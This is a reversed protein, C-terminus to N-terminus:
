ILCSRQLFSLSDSMFSNEKDYLDEKSNLSKLKWTLWIGLVKHVCICVNTVPTKKQDFLNIIIQEILIKLTGLDNDLSLSHTLFGKQGLSCKSKPFMKTNGKRVLRFHYEITVQTQVKRIILSRM